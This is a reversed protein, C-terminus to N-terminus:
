QKQNILLSVTRCRCRPWIHQSTCVCSAKCANAEAAACAANRVRLHAVFQCTQRGQDAPKRLCIQKPWNHQVGGRSFHLANHATHMRVRRSWNNTGVCGAAHANLRTAQQKGTHQQTCVHTAALRQQKNAGQTTLATLATAQMVTLLLLMQMVAKMQLGATHVSACM